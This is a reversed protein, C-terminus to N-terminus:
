PGLAGGRAREAAAAGGELPVGAAGAARMQLELQSVQLQHMERRFAAKQRMQQVQGICGCRFCVLCGVLSCALAILKGACQGSWQTHAHDMAFSLRFCSECATSGVGSFYSLSCSACTACGEERSYSGPECRKYSVQHALDQYAGAPVPHCGSSVSANSYRGPPCAPTRTWGQGRGRLVRARVRDAHHRRPERLAGQARVPLRPARQHVCVQRARVEPVGLRLHLGPLPGARVRARPHRRVHRLAGQGRVQLQAGGPRARVQGARVQLLVRLARPQRLRPQVRG